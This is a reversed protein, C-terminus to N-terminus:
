QSVRRKSFFLNDTYSLTPLAAKNFPYDLKGEGEEEAEDNIFAKAAKKKAMKEVADNSDDDQTLDVLPKKAHRRRKSPTGSADTKAKRKVAHVFDTM